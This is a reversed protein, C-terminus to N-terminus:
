VVVVGSASGSAQLACALQLGRMCDCVSAAVTGWAGRMRWVWSQKPIAESKHGLAICTAPQQNCTAPCLEYADGIPADLRPM